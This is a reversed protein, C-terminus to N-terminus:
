QIGRAHLGELVAVMVFAVSAPGNTFNAGLITYNPGVLNAFFTANNEIVLTVALSRTADKSPWGNAVATTTTATTVLNLGGGQCLMWLPCTQYPKTGLVFQFAFGALLNEVDRIDSRADFYFRYQFVAMAEPAQLTQSKNMNTQNLTKGSSPGVSTFFVANAGGQSIVAATAVTISDYIPEHQVDMEDQIYTPSKFAELIMLQQQTYNVNPDILPQAPM